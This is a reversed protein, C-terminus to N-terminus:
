ISGGSGVYKVLEAEIEALEKLDKQEEIELEQLRLELERRDSSNDGVLGQELIRLEDGISDIIEVATDGLADLVGLERYQELATTLAKKQDQTLSMTTAPKKDRDEPPNIVPEKSPRKPYHKKNQVVSNKTKKETLLAIVAASPAQPHCADRQGYNEMRCLMLSTIKQGTEQSLFKAFQVQTMERRRRAAKIQKGSLVSIM